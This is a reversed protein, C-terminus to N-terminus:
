DAVSEQWYQFVLLDRISHMLLQHCTFLLHKGKKKLKREEKRLKTFKVSQSSFSPNKQWRNTIM